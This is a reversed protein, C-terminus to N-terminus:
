TAMQYAGDENYLSKQKDKVNSCLIEVVAKQLEKYEVEYEYPYDYGFDYDIKM